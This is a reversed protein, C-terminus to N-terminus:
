IVTWIKHTDGKPEKVLTKSNEIYIDKVEETLNIELYKTTKTAATFSVTQKKPYKMTTLLHILEPSKICLMM